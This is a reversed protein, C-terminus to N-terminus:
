PAMPEIRNVYELQVIEKLKKADCAGFVIMLSKDTADVKVGMGALKSLTEPKLDKLWFQVEVKGSTLKQLKESLKSQINFQRREAASMIAQGNRDAKTDAVKGKGARGRYLGSPPPLSPSAAISGPAGGFGGGGGGFGGAPNNGTSYNVFKANSKESGFIGDYSVGAPMEVPVQVTQQKGGVNVVKDEVAVFSTFQTMIAFQLGIQTIDNTVDRQGKGQNSTMWSQRMLDEVKERAWLTAISSGSQDEAPFNLDLTQKWYDGGLKGTITVRGAGPTAYRGKIVVPAESFVDPIYKPLTEFTDGGEFQVKIDTLVPSRLRQTFRAVAKDADSELTVIESAGRGESGMADILFRNVGNGIGFTFMRASARHDQVAKLVEFDNGVYGDTNFLVIRVRNPDSAPKMAELVGSLLETGGNATIGDIFAYAASRNQRTNPVAKPWLSRTGTNFTVVNFTDDANMTEILKKTLDKSKEIPFGSQSGSQDMVFIMEKPAIQEVTPAKPPMLILTFFGGQKPNAHTLFATKVTNSAMRYHLIFGRNPIEDKKQLTVMAKDDGQRNINVEHLVSNMEEIKAGADLNVKLDITAGSRTGRAVVQPTIKQPDPVTAGIYRPGVVMPYMFEFEGDEYKLIQVYSIEIQVEAGPTINAVSQTFINPREQDLLSATKGQQKAQDYIAKAEEKKKIVGNIVREGIKMRMRDVAADAPLPFTYIAEITDKTPNSFTQVVTVRAGFGAIDASVSTGKLPCLVGPKAEKSIITLQGPEPDQARAPQVGSGSFMAVAALTTALMLTGGILETKM